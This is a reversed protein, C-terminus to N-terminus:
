HWRGALGVNIWVILAVIMVVFAWWKPLNFAGVILCAACGVLIAVGEAKKDPRPDLIMWIPGWLM